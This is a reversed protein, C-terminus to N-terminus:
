YILEDCVTTHLGGYSGYEKTRGGGYVSCASFVLCMCILGYLIYM